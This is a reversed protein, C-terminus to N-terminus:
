ETFELNDYTDIIFDAGPFEDEGHTTTLCIIKMGARHAAEVGIPADDFMICEHPDIKIAEAAKLLLEPDPKPKTFDEEGVVADLINELHLRSIIFDRNKKQATTAMAIKIGRSKLEDFITPLGSIAEVHNSYLERYIEEKENAYKTIDEPSVERGFLMPIVQSNGKGSTKERIEDDTWHFGHRKAFELWAMRHFLQNHVMTGDMDFLAGKIGYLSVQKISSM